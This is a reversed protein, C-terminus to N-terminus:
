FRATLGASLLPGGLGVETFVGINETFHYSYGASMRYALPMSITGLRKSFDILNDDLYLRARVKNFGIGLTFYLDSRSEAPLVHFNALITTRFRPVKMVYHGFPDFGSLDINWKDDIEQFFTSDEVTFDIQGYRYNMDVGLSLWDFLKYGVEIGMGPKGQYNVKDQFQNSFKFALKLMSPGGVYTQVRFPKDAQGIQAVSKMTFSLALLLFLNKMNKM